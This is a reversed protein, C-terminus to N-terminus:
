SKSSLSPMLAAGTIRMWTTLCHGIPKLAKDYPALFEARGTLLYGRQGTEVDLINKRLDLVQARADREAALQELM